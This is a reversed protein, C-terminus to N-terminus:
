ASNPHQVHRRRRWEGRQHLHYGSGVLTARLLLDCLRCMEELPVLAADQQQAAVGAAAAEAAREAREAQRAAVAAAAREAEPGSGLYVKAYRGDQRRSLYFYRRDGRVSWPM